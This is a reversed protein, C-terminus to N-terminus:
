LKKLVFLVIGQALIAIMLGVIAFLIMSKAGNINNPDGSSLVYRLGGITIAIVSAIGVLVAVLQTTKGIIGNPGYISNSTHTQDRNQCAVANPQQLCIDRLPDAQASAVPVALFVLVTVASSFQLIRKMVSM